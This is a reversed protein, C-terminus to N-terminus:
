GAESMIWDRFVRLPSGTAIDEPYILYYGYNRLQVAEYRYMKGSAIEDDVLILRCRHEWDQGPAEDIFAVWLQHAVEEALVFKAWPEITCLAEFAIRHPLIYAKIGQHRGQPITEQVLEVVEAFTM